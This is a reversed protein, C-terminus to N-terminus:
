KRQNCRMEEVPTPTARRTRYISRGSLSLEHCTGCSRVGNELCRLAVDDHAQEFLLRRVSDRIEDAEGFARFFEGVLAGALFFLPGKVVAQNKVAHNGVEHNLASAGFAAAAASRAVFEAVLKMRRQLV